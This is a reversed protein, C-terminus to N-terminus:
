RGKDITAQFPRHAALEETLWRTYRLAGERNLHQTDAFESARPRRAQPLLLVTSGTREGLELLLDRLGQEDNAPDPLLHRARPHHPAEVLWVRTGGSQLRRIADLLTQRKLAGLEYPALADALRDWQMESDAEQQSSIHGRLEDYGGVRRNPAPDPLGLWARKMRYRLGALAVRDLLWRDAAGRWRVPDFVARGYPSTNLMAVNAYRAKTWAGAMRITVVLLAHVPQDVGFMLELAIPLSATAVMGASAFNFARIPRGDAYELHRRLWDSAVSQRAVSSGIVVVDNPGDREVHARLAEYQFMLRRSGTLIPQTFDGLQAIAIAITCMGAVALLACGPRVPGELENKQDTHQVGPM